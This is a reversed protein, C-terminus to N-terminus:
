ILNIKAIKGIIKGNSKVFSIDVVTTEALM